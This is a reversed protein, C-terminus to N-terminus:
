TTGFQKFDGLVNLADYGRKAVADAGAKKVYGVGGGGDEDVFVGVGVDGGVGFPSDIAENGGGPGVTVGFAVGIGVDFGHEGTAGLEGEDFLAFQEKSRPLADEKGFEVTRAFPFDVDLHQGVADSETPLIRALLDGFGFKGEWIAPIGTTEELATV